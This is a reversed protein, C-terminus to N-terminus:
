RTCYAETFGEKDDLFTCSARGPVSRTDCLARRYRRNFECTEQEDFRAEVVCSDPQGRTCVVYKWPLAPEKPGASLVFLLFLAPM